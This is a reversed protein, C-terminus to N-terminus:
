IMSYIHLEGGGSKDSESGGEGGDRGELDVHVFVLAAAPARLVGLAGLVAVFAHRGGATRRGRKETSKPKSHLGVLIVRRM